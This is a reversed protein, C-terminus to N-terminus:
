EGASYNDPVAALGPVATAGRVQYNKLVSTLKLSRLAREIALVRIFRFVTTSTLFCWVLDIVGVSVVLLDFRNWGDKRCVLM